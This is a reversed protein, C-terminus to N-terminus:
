RGPQKFKLPDVDPLSRGDTRAVRQFRYHKLTASLLECKVLMWEDTRMLYPVLKRNSEQSSQDVYLDVTELRQSTDLVAARLGPDTPPKPELNKESLLEKQETPAPGASGAIPRREPQTPVCSALVLGLLCAAAKMLVTM